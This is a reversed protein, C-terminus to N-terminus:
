RDGAKSPDSEIAFKPIVIQSSGIPWYGGIETLNRHQYFM